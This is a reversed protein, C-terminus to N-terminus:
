LKNVGHNRVNLEHNLPLHQGALIIQGVIPILQLLALPLMRYLWGQSQWPYRLAQTLPRILKTM